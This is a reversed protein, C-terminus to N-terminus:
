SYVSKIGQKDGVERECEVGPQKECKLLTRHLNQRTSNARSPPSFRAKKQVCRTIQKRGDQANSICATRCRRKAAHYLATRHAITCYSNTQTQGTYAPFSHSLIPFPARRSRSLIRTNIIPSKNYRERNQKQVAECGAKRANISVFTDM